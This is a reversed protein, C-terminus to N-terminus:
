CGDHVPLGRRVFLAHQDHVVVDFQRRNILMEQLRKIVFDTGRGVTFHCQSLNEAPVHVGNDTIEPHRFELAVQKVAGNLPHLRIKAATKDKQGARRVIGFIM